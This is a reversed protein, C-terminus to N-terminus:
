FDYKIFIWIKWNKVELIGLFSFQSQFNASFSGFTWIKFIQIFTFVDYFSCNKPKKHFKESKWDKKYFFPLFWSNWLGKEHNESFSFTFSM